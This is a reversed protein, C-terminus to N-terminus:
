IIYNPVTDSFIKIKTKSVKELILKSSKIILVQMINFNDFNM